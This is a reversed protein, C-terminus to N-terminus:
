PARQEVAMQGGQFGVHVPDSVRLKFRIGQAGFQGIRLVSVRKRTEGEGGLGRTVPDSWSAGGDRSWSIQVVPDTQVPDEGSASGVGVTFDFDARLVAGRAPFSPTVGTVIEFILPDDAERYYTPDISFLKGSSVDGSIWRDFARLTTCSRWDSANFSEKEQWNGTTINYEWTWNDRYTLVWFHHNGDSYVSAELTDGDGAAICARIDRAVDENSILDPRYGNMKRVTADDAAWILVGPGGIEHGAVANTGAIGRAITLDRRELPFPSAGIDRYVSCGRTGFFYSDGDLFVGRLLSGCSQETTFASASVTVANLGSAFIRGDAYPWLFYNNHNHVSKPSGPLDADAFSTPASGTFLNFCGQAPSVAVINPTGANNVATTIKDTGAFAGLNVGSFTGASETIAWARTDLVTVMTSGSVIAGRLHSFGTVSYVQRLGPSRRWIVPFRAAEGQKEAFCNVLRGSGEQGKIGPSSSVPIPIATM